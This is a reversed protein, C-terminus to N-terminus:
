TGRPPTPQHLCYQFHPIPPLLRHLGPPAAAAAATCRAHSTDERWRRTRISRPTLSAAPTPTIQTPLPALLLPIPCPLTRLPFPSQDYRFSLDNMCLFDLGTRVATQTALGIRATCKDTGCYVGATGCFFRKLGRQDAAVAPLRAVRTRWAKPWRGGKGEGSSTRSNGGAAHTHPLENRATRQQLPARQAGRRLRVGLWGRPLPWRQQGGDNHTAPRLAEMTSAVSTPVRGQRGGGSVRRAGKRRTRRGCHSRTNAKRYGMLGCEGVAEAGKRSTDTGSQQGWGCM